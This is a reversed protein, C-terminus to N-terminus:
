RELVRSLATVEVGEKVLAARLRKAFAVAHPNDGHICVTDAAVPVVTGDVAEVVGEKVMRLVRRVAEDEDAIMAGAQGRPVLKGNALYGRDAFVEGAAKLGARKAAEMHCSGSLGMFIIGSDVEAIAGCIALALDMDEASMNYLAGHPKVHQVSLGEAKAFAMLAGLQYKVYAAAERPSIMMKRRGFGMLDPFGPHAGVAVKKEAALRVTQQMTMADGAHWGCAVNASTIHSLVEEDMGLQYTGFSEGLDANLDVRYM